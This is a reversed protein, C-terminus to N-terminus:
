KVLANRAKATTVFRKLQGILDVIKLAPGVKMGTLIVIQDKTLTLLTQGTIKQFCSILILLIIGGYM